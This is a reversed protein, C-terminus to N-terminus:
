IATILIWGCSDIALCEEIRQILEESVVVLNIYAMTSMRPIGRM